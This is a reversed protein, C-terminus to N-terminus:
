RSLTGSGEGSGDNHYWRVSKADPSFVLKINDAIYGPRTQIPHTKGEYSLDATRKVVFGLENVLTRNLEYILVKGTNLDPNVTVRYIRTDRKQGNLFRRAIQGEYTGALQTNRAGSSQALLIHLDQAAQKAAAGGLDGKARVPMAAALATIALAFAALVLAPHARLRM